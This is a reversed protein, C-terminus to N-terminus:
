AKRRRRAAEVLETFLRASLQEERRIREPHWQVGIVFHERLDGEMAEIVGDQARAAVRLGRGPKEASQHHTSNVRVQGAGGAWEAVRTGAELVIAHWVGEGRHPLANPVSAPIDQVLTGGLYVNLSQMGYCIGLVPKKEQFAAALVRLDTEDRERHIHIVAPHREAGYRAPDVDSESGTLVLADLRAALEGAIRPILPIQVPLGGAEMVAESYDRPLYFWNKEENWRCTLGILPKDANQQSMSLNQFNPPDTQRDRCQEIAL